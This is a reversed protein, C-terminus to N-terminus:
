YKKYYFFVSRETFKGFQLCDFYYIYRKVIKKALRQRVTNNIQKLNTLGEKKKKKGKSRKEPIKLDIGTAAKIDNLLHPDQWDPVVSVYFYLLFIFLYLYFFLYTFNQHMFM